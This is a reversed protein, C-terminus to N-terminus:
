TMLVKTKDPSKYNQNPNNQSYRLRAFVEKTGEKKKLGVEQDRSCMFPLMTHM